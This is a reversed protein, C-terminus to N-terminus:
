PIQIPISEKNFIFLPRQKITSRKSNRERSIFINKGTDSEHLDVIEYRGEIDYMVPEEEFIRSIQSQPM